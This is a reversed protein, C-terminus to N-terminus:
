NARGKIKKGEYQVYSGNASVLSNIGTADIVYQIEFINRGTSIVPLINNERLENIAAVNEDSVNKENDFLTGDLDFFYLRKICQIGEM